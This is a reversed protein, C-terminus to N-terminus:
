KLLENKLLQLQNKVSADYITGQYTAVFGGILNKNLCSETKKSKTANIKEKIKEEIEKNIEIGYELSFTNWKLEKKIKDELYLITNPILSELKYEKIYSEIANLLNSNNINEEKSIKYIAEALNKSSIM